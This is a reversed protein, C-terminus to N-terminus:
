AYMWCEQVLKLTERSFHMFTKERFGRDFSFRLLRRRQAVTTKCFFDDFVTGRGSLALKKLYNDLEKLARSSNSDVRHYNYFIGALRKRERDADLVSFNSTLFKLRTELLDFDRNKCYSILARTVRTKIKKVKSDAIDLHVVRFPQRDDSKPPECVTFQYGLFEFELVNPPPQISQFPLVNKSATQIKTKNNNLYLGTPLSESIAEIFKSEVENGGTIIIIDDVYRSYFFVGATERIKTDFPLMMIESLTASLALGRPVGLGGSNGHHRLIEGAMRKTLPSLKPINSISAIIESASFSEYFSKVDLRYVRYAVGESLLSRINAIISDRSASPIKISRKINADIKRLVLEDSFSTIRYIFKNKVKAKSLFTSNAFGQNVREVADTIAQARINQSRLRPANLFDSKRLMRSISVLNFSQDYM